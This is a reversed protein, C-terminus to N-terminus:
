VLQWDLKHASFRQPRSVPLPVSLPVQLAAPCFSPVQTGRLTVLGAPATTVWPAQTCFPQEKPM